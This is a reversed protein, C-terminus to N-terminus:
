SHGHYRIHVQITASATECKARYYITEGAPVHEARLRVQQTTGIKTDQAMFRQRSVITHADGYAVEVMYVKDKVSSNEVMMSSGHVGAIVGKSSLTVSNNDVIEAWEGWVNNTGGATLTVTEDTDEPFITTIHESELVLKDVKVDVVALEAGTSADYAVNANDAQTRSQAQSINNLATIEASTAVGSIVKLNKM